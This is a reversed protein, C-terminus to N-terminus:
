TRSPQATLVRTVSGARALLGPLVRKIFFDANVEAVAFFLDTLDPVELDKVWELDKGTGVAVFELVQPLRDLMLAPFDIKEASRAAMFSEYLPASARIFNEIGRVKVPRVTIVEGGFLTVPVEQPLIKSIGLHDRLEQAENM